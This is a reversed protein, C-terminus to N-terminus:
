AGPAVIRMDSVNHARLDCTVRAYCASDDEDEDEDEYGQNHYKREAICRAVFAM